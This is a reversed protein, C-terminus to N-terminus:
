SHAPFLHLFILWFAVVSIIVKSKVFLYYFNMNESKIRNFYCVLDNIFQDRKMSIYRLGYNGNDIFNLFKMRCFLFDFELFDFFTM